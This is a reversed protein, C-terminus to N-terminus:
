RLRSLTGECRAFQRDRDIWRVATSTTCTRRALLQRHFRSGPIAILVPPLYGHCAGNQVPRPLDCRKSHRPRFRLRLRRCRCLNNTRAIGFKSTWMAPPTEWMEPSIESAPRSLEPTSGVEVGLLSWGGGERSTECIALVLQYPEPPSGVGEGMLSGEESRARIRARRRIPVVSPHGALARGVARHLWASVFGTAGPM